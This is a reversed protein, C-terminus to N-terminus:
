TWSKTSFPPETNPGQSSRLTLDSTFEAGQHLAVFINFGLGGAGLGFYIGLNHGCIYVKAMCDVTSKSHSCM